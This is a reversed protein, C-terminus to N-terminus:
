AVEWGERYQKSIYQDAADTNTAKLKAADWELKQGTRYAVNGLLVTETLAGAYDFNCLPQTGDKCAKIWEAHQGISSEIWPTPPQFDAFKEKPFLRYNNYDAFMKGESGVFMVGSGPVREGAVERPTQDGDYWILKCAALDERAPFEYEVSLGLPCTEEHVKPGHAVCSTPHRLKLAWFPLDMYHCGMDGLTGQGFDWWRRWQAPHYRGAAYPREPAPGLWLDWHLHAPPETGNEPREGGGWGKGVWVHVDTVDGIAGSQIIEVVRRYNDGAHIQTGMQTVVGHEKAAEAIIRAEQVTHTLPKECYVHLGQRIARITAPAHHHDTTGIVVADIKGKEQDLMERYDHYTRANPFEGLKRKLYNEDVDVLAVINEGQVGQIDNAARNATGICAINLKENPSSSEQAKAGTWVSSAIAAAGATTAQIFTRRSTRPNLM